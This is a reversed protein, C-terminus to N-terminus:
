QLGGCVSVTLLGADPTRPGGVTAVEHDGVPIVGEDLYERPRSGLCRFRQVRVARVGTLRQVTQYVDSLHVDGGLGTTDPDLLGGNGAIAERVEERVRGPDADATAAVVLDIDLPLWIPPVAEVDFGLM